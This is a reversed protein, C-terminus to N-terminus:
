ERAIILEVRQKRAPDPEISNTELLIASLQRSTLTEVGGPVQVGLRILKREVQSRMQAHPDAATAPAAVALALAVAALVRLM